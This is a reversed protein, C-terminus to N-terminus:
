FATKEKGTRAHRAWRRKGDFSKGTHTVASGWLPPHGRPKQLRTGCWWGVWALLPAGRSGAVTGARVSKCDLRM